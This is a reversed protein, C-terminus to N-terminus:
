FEILRRSHCDSNGNSIAEKYNRSEINTSLGSVDIDSIDALTWCLLMALMQLSDIV